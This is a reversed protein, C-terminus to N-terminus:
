KILKTGVFSDNCIMEVSAALSKVFFTFLSSQRTVSINKSFSLRFPSLECPLVM